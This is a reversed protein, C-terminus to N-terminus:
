RVSAAATLEYSRAIASLAEPAVAPEPVRNVIAPVTQLYRFMATLDDNSSSGINAWPMPPLIPRGASDGRHKGTRLAALFQGVSWEGLGTEKDSTLNASFVVGFPTKFSTFTPGIVAQDGTGPSASPEPAGEPHGSMARERMPSPMGLQPDFRMPTHCDACGALRVLREGRQILEPDTPAARETLRPLSPTAREACAATGLTMVLFIATGLTSRM